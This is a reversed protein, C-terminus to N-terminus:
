HTRPIIKLRKLDRGAVGRLTNGAEGKAVPGFKMDKSYTIKADEFRIAFVHKRTEKKLGHQKPM